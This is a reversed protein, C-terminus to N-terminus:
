VPRREDAKETEWSRSQGWVIPPIWREPPYIANHGHREHSKSEDSRRQYFARQEEYRTRDEQAQPSFMYDELAAYAKEAVESITAGTVNVYATVNIGSYGPLRVELDWREKMYRNLRDSANIAFKTRRLTVSGYGGLEDLIDEVSMNSM